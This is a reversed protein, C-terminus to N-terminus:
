FSGDHGVVAEGFGLLLQRGAAEGEGHTEGTNIGPQPIDVVVLGHRYCLEFQHTGGLRRVLTEVEHVKEWGGIAAVADLFAAVAAAGGFGAV